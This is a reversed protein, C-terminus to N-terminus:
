SATSARGTRSSQDGRVVAVLEDMADVVLPPRAARLREPDLGWAVGCFDVGANAATAVDRPLRRRPANPQCM